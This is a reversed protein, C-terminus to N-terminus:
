TKRFLSHNAALSRHTSTFTSPAYPEFTGWHKVGSGMWVAERQCGAMGFAAFHM